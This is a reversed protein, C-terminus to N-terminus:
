PRGDSVSHHVTRARDTAATAADTLSRRSGRGGIIGFMRAVIGTEARRRPVSRRCRWGGQWARFWDCFM